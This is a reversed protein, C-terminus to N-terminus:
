ATNITMAANKPDALLYAGNDGGGKAGPTDRDIWLRENLAVNDIETDVTSQKKARFYIHGLMGPVADLKVRFNPLFFDHLVDKSSLNVDINTEVPLIIPRGAFNVVDDDRGDDPVSADPNVVRGMPNSSLDNSIARIADEYSKGRD